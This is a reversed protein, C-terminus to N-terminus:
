SLRPVSLHDDIFTCTRQQLFYNLHHVDRSQGFDEIDAPDLAPAGLKTMSSTDVVLDNAAEFVLSAVKAALQERQMFYRWFRWRPGDPQFDSQVALYRVGKPRSGGSLRALEQNDPAQANLGPVMAIAVDVLPSQAALGGLSSMVRLLGTVVTMLSVAASPADGAATIVRAVNTLLDLAHRLKGASALSTGGFPSGVFFANINQARPRHFVELWWRCVLGGRSHCVVDIDANSDAFLRALDVANLVPSVSLTPHDFAYVADYGAARELLSKGHTTSLFHEFFVDGRSFTGHIFLLIKAGGKRPIPGADKQLVGDHFQRLGRLPTLKNDLDALFSGVRNTELKEFKFQKVIEAPLGARYGARRASPLTIGVGRNWRLVGDSETLTLLDIDDGALRAGSRRRELVSKEDPRVKEGIPVMTAARAALDLTTEFQPDIM